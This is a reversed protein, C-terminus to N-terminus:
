NNESAQGTVIQQLAKQNITVGVLREVQAIYQTFVDDAYSRNLAEILRKREESNAAVKPEIVDTVRFVVQEISVTAQASGYADKATRFIAEVTQESLPPPANGRKIGTKTEVKLGDAAAVEAFPTGVNLKDLLQKAKARLRSATEDERWRAEVQGKVEDLLRDRSPTLGTIEYWIYGGGDTQLADNEVGAGAAFAAALLRQEDPLDTISKGSTDHGTRDVEITRFSLKLNKAAEALTKGLSREDEIKDYLTLIQAKARELAVDHKLEKTVEEFTRVREPEIKVVHILVTGFRGQVPKSVEGEKLGFAADAIARDIIAAKPLTGLDIDKESLGREKAIELFSAGKTIRDAAAQADKLSKFVIQQLTRREPTTYRSRRQDYIRKLDADSIEISRALESPLLPLIVVKRYEPARFLFKHQEFYKALVELSPAPIKGAKSRELLVFEVSRQENRYREAADGAAKPLQTGQLVTGVLQRRLLRRRQETVYRQETFGADRIIQEFRVRDFQGDPTQFNPDSMIRRAVEADSVGLKLMKVREDLTIEAFLQAVIQTDFGLKHAQDLTIPRGLQRGLQQLRDNYLQRFEEITIETGGIRALSSRGFGRFIDGIGWITFSVAILGLVVGM